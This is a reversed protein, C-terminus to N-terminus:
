PDRRGGCRDLGIRALEKGTATEWLICARGQNCPGATVLTKGDPAFALSQIGGPHHFRVSGLRAVAGEPLPDGYRDLPPAAKPRPPGAPRADGPAWLALAGCPLLVLLLLRTPM